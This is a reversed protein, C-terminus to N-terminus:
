PRGASVLGEFYVPTYAVDTGPMAAQIATEAGYPGAGLYMVVHTIPTNGDNAFHYFLLDGPQLQDLGVPKSTEWQSTASHELSFGATAWALMTLGSCDVGSHSAGGWVYPVGLFKRAATAALRGQARTAVRSVDTGALNPGRYPSGKPWPTFLRAFEKAGVLALLQKSVSAYQKAATEILRRAESRLRGTLALEEAIDRGNAVARARAVSVADLAAQYRAVADKLQRIAVGSYVEAMQGDAPNGSLLPSNVATLEGTVYALVAAQRLRRGAVDVRARASTVKADLTAVRRRSAALKYQEADYTESLGAAKRNATTITQMDSLLKKLLGEAAAPVVPLTTTTTTTTGHTGPKTTTTTTTTTVTAAEGRPATMALVIPQLGVTLVTAVVVPWRRALPM